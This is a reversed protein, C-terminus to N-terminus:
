SDAVSNDTFDSVTDESHLHGYIKELITYQKTLKTSIEKLLDIMKDAINPNFNFELQDDQTEEPQPPTIVPPQNSPQIFNSPAVVNTPPQPRPASVGRNLQIYQRMGQKLTDTSTVLTSPQEVMMSDIQNSQGILFAMAEIEEPINPNMYKSLLDGGQAYL